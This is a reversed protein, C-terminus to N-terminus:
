RSTKIPDKVASVTHVEVNWVEGDIREVRRVYVNQIIDRTDRDISVPGRPSEWAMGKMADVLAAGDTSGKTTELAKMIIHMGDYGGLSPFSPRAGLAKLMTAVYDKNLPSAHAASYHHATVFGLALDGLENLIEDDTTEGTGLLRLLSRDIGREALQRVLAISLSGPVSIFLADPSADRIRQALSAADAGKAPVRLSGAIQGGAGVFSKRFQAEAEAGRADDSTLTVIRKLSLKVAWEAIPLAVQAATYGTRVIFPSQDTVASTEAGMVVMPVKAQTALPATAYALPTLAFGALVSVKESGILEEAHRRTADPSAADDRVVLEVRKGAVVAGRQQLYLRAGAEIQRGASANPGSAPVILGVKVTDQARAPSWLTAAVIALVVIAQARGFM